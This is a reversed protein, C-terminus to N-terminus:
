VELLRLNLQLADPTSAITTIVFVGSRPAGLSVRMMAQSIREFSYDCYIKCYCRLNFLRALRAACTGLIESLTLSVSLRPSRTRPPAMGAHTARARPPPPPPAYRCTDFFRLGGPRRGFSGSTRWSGALGWILGWMVCATQCPHDNNFYQPWHVNQFQRCYVRCGRHRSFRMATFGGVTDCAPYHTLRLKSYM